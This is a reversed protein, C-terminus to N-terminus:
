ARNLARFLVTVETQFEILEFILLTHREILFTAKSGSAFATFVVRGFANRAPLFAIPLAHSPTFDTALFGTFNTMEVTSFRPMMEPKLLSAPLNPTM